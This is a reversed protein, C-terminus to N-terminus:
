SKVMAIVGCIIASFGILLPVLCGTNGSSNSSASRGRLANMGDKINGIKSPFPLDRKSLEDFFAKRAVDKSVPFLLRRESNWRGSPKFSCLVPADWQATGGTFMTTNVQEITMIEAPLSSDNGSPNHGKKYFMSLVFLYRFGSSDSSPISSLQLQREMANMADMQLPPHKQLFCIYDGCDWAEGDDESIFWAPMTPNQEMSLTYQAM